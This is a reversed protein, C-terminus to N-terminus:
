ILLALHRIYTSHPDTPPLGRTTYLSLSVGPPVASSQSAHHLPTITQPSVNLSGSTSTTTEAPVPQTCHMACCLRATLAEPTEAQGRALECCDMGAMKMGCGGDGAHLPAGALVSGAFAAILVLSTLRKLM